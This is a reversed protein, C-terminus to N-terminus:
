SDFEFWYTAAACTRAHRIANAIAGEGSLGAGLRDRLRRSFSIDRWGYAGEAADDLTDIRTQILHGSLLELFSNLKMYRWIVTQDDPVVNNM